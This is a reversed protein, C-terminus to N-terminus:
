LLDSLLWMMRGTSHVWIEKYTANNQMPYYPEDENEFTEFGVPVAGVIQNSAAVYLPHYDYGEGYMSSSAFPNFGLVWEVQRVATDRLEKDNLTKSAIM